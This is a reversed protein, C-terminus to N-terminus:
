DKLGWLRLDLTDQPPLVQALTISRRVIKNALYTHGDAGRGTIAIKLPIGDGTRCETRGADSVGPMMDFWTCTEDLIVEKPKDMAKPGPLNVGKPNRRFVLSHPEGDPGFSLALSATGDIRGSLIRRGNSKIDEYVWPFHRRVIVNAREAESTLTVEFDPADLTPSELPDNWRALDLLDPPPQTFAKAASRRQFKVVQASGLDLEGSGSTRRWLEIGDATVCGIRRFNRGPGGAGMVGEWIACTEGLVKESAPTKHIEYGSAKAGIPTLELSRYGGQPDRDLVAWVGTKLNVYSLSQHGNETKDVRLWVKRRTVVHVDRSPPGWSRRVDLTAVYDSGGSPNPVLVDQQGTVAGLPAPPSCAGAAFSSLAVVLISSLARVARMCTAWPKCSGGYRTERSGGSLRHVDAEPAAALPREQRM